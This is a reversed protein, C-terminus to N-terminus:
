FQASVFLEREQLSRWPNMRIHGTQTVQILIVPLLFPPPSSLLLLLSPPSSSTVVNALSILPPTDELGRGRSVHLFLSVQSLYPMSSVCVPECVCMTHASARDGHANLHGSGSLIIRLPQPQRAPQPSCAARSYTPFSVCMCAGCCVCMCM